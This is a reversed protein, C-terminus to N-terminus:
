SVQMREVERRRYRTPNMIQDTHRFCRSLSLMDLLGHPIDPDVTRSPDKPLRRRASFTM